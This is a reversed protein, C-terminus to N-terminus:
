NIIETEDLLIKGDELVEITGIKTSLTVSKAGKVKVHGNNDTIHAAPTDKPKSLQAIVIWGQLTHQVLISDGVSARTIHKAQAIVKQHTNRAILKIESIRSQPDILAVEAIEPQINLQKKKPHISTISATM